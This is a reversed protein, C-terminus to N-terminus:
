FINQLNVTEKRPIHEIMTRIESLQARSLTISENLVYQKLKALSFEINDMEQHELFVPWWRAEKKWDAEFEDAQRNAEDWQNAEIQGSIQDIQTILQQSSRQLAHNLWYGGGLILMVAIVVGTWLKM